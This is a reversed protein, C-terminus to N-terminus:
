VYDIDQDQELNKQIVVLYNQDDIKKETDWSQGKM